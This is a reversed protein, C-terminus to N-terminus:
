ARGCQPQLSLLRAQGILAPTEPAAPQGIVGAAMPWRCVASVRGDLRNSHVGLRGEGRRQFTMAFGQRGAGSCGGSSWPTERCIAGCAVPLGWFVSIGGPPPASARLSLPGAAAPKSPPERELFGRFFPRGQRGRSGPRPSCGRCRKSVLSGQHKDNM